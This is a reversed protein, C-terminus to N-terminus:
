SGDTCGSTIDSASKDNDRDGETAQDLQKLLDTMSEPIAESVIGPYLASLERGIGVRVFESDINPRRVM